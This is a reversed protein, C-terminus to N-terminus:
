VLFSPASQEIVVIEGALAAVLRQHLASVGTELRIAQQALIVTRHDDVYGAELIAVAFREREYDSRAGASEHVGRAVERAHDIAHLPEAGLQQEM